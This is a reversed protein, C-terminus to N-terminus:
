QNTLLNLTKDDREGDFFRDLVAQFSARAEPHNDGAALLFLTVSSKLKLDDPFPLIRSINTERCQHLLDACECLRDGLLPHALYAAAEEISAIGYKIARASSGLSRLQPFIFWMWHTTKRGRALERIVTQYVPAQAVVFRELDFRDPSSAAESM